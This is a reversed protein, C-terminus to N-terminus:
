AALREGTGADFLHARQTDPRLHITSGPAFDHRERFVVSLDASEHRCAVFTDAGTPEVVVVRSPIGSDALSLHEPRMGMKVPQGDVGGANAPADRAICDISRAPTRSPARHGSREDLWRSFAARAADHPVGKGADPEVIGARIHEIVSLRYRLEAFSM